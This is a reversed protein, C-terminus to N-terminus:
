SFLLGAVELELENRQLRVLTDFDCNIEVDGDLMIFGGKLPRTEESLSVGGDSGANMVATVTKLVKELFPGAKSDTIVPPLEPANGGKLAANVKSVVEKGVSEKDKVSFVLSETGSSVCAIALSVLLDIYEGQPRSTLDELAKEFAESILDQKMALEMKKGEMEASSALRDKREAVQIKGKELIDESLAKAEAEASELIADVEKKTDAEIQAIEAKADAAIRAEIKEMGNM